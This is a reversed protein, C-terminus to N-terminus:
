LLAEFEDFLNINGINQGDSREIEIPGPDTASKLIIEAVAIEGSITDRIDAAIFKGAPCNQAAIQGSHMRDIRTIVGADLFEDIM